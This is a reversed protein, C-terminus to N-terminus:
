LWVVLPQQLGTRTLPNTQFGMDNAEFEPTRIDGGVGYRWHPDANISGLNWGLAAGALTTRTPDAM